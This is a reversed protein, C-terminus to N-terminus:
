VTLKGNSNKRYTKTVNKNLLKNYGDKDIRYLNFIKNALIIIKLIRSKKKKKKNRVKTLTAESMKFTSVKILSILSKEFYKIKKIYTKM